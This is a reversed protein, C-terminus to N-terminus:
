SKPTMETFFFIIIVNTKNKPSSNSLTLEYKTQDEKM